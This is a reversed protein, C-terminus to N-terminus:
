SISELNPSSEMDLYAHHAYRDGRYYASLLEVPRSDKGIIQLRLYILPAGATVGLLQAMRADALTAGILQHAGQLQIGKSILLSPLATGKIDDCSVDFGLYKPIFIEAFGIAESDRIRKYSIHIIEDEADIDLDKALEAAQRSGIELDELTTRKALRELNQMLEGFNGRDPSKKVGSQLVFTGRGQIREVVNQRELMEIAARVTIRSVDFLRCLETESPLKEGIPYVGRSIWDNVAAYVQVYRPSLQKDSSDNNLKFPEKKVDVGAM